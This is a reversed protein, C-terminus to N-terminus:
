GPFTARPNLIQGTKSNHHGPFTVICCLSIRYIAVLFSVFCFVEISFIKCCGQSRKPRPGASGPGGAQTLSPGGNAVNVGVAGRSCGCVDGEWGWETWIGCM